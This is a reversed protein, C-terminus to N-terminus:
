TFSELGGSGHSDCIRVKTLSLPSSLKEEADSWHTYLGAVRGEKINQIYVAQSEEGM